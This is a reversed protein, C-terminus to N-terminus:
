ADAVGPARALWKRRLDFEHLLTATLPGLHPEARRLWVDNSLLRELIEVKVLNELDIDADQLIAEVCDFFAEMEDSTGSGQLIPELIPLAISQNFVLYPGPPEDLYWDNGVELSYKHVDPFVEAFTDLVIQIDM